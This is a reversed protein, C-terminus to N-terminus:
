QDGNSTNNGRGRDRMVQYNGRSVALVENNWTDDSTIERVCWDPIEISRGEPGEIEAIILGNHRELFVDVDWTGHDVVQYRRKKVIHRSRKLIQRALESDMHTEYEEREDGVRPGKAALAAALDLYEPEHPDDGHMPNPEQILRVRVAYGDEAFVYAQTILVWPWGEVISPESVLFRREREYKRRHTM